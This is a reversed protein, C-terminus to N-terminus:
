DAFVGVEPVHGARGGRAVEAAVGVHDFISLSDKLALAKYLFTQEFFDIPDSWLGCVGFLLSKVAQIAGCRVKLPRANTHRRVGEGTWDNCGIQVKAGSRSSSNEDHRLLPVVQQFLVPAGDEDARIQRILTPEGRHGGIRTM